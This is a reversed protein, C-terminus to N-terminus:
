QKNFKNILTQGNTSTVKILYAGKNLNSVDISSASNQKVLMRSGSLNFVEVTEIEVGAINLLNNAPNPYLRLSNSYDDFGVTTYSTTVPTTDVVNFQINSEPIWNGESDNFGWEWNNVGDDPVLQLTVSWINDGATEDGNTGDDYFATHEVGGDWDADYVGTAGKWSGKLMFGSYTKGASDDIIFTVDAKEEPMKPITYSTSVANEDAVTFEIDASPMWNGDLDEFGWKWTNSGGDSVLDITVSWIHDGATQDGNTGDDYFSSQVVGGDWESDYEGSASKWSGKLVFGSYTKDATDDVIFTVPTPNPGFNDFIVEVKGIYLIGGTVAGGGEIEQAAVQLVRAKGNTSTLEIKQEVFDASAAQAGSGLETWNPDSFKMFTNVADVAKGSTGEEYKVHAKFGTTGEPFTYEPVNMWSDWANLTVKFYKNGDISVIEWGSALDGEFTAPDVIVNPDVPIEIFAKVQGIWLTDGSVANWGQTEQGAVQMHTVTGAAKTPMKYMKFASSSGAAGVGLEAWGDSSNDVLKLFTNIQNVAFGSTGVAYKAEATFHTMESTLDFPVDLAFSSQWGALIVQLYKKGEIDVISMGEPLSDAVATEPDFIVMPDGLLFLDANESITNEDMVGSYINFENVTGLWTADNAYGGRALWAFDNSLASLSNNETLENTGKLEGDIYLSLTTGDITVVVHHKSGAETLPDATVASEVSWPETLNGCSIAARSAPGNWHNPAFFLGDGGLGNASGGLYIIMANQPTNDGVTIYTEFSASSYTNIAIDAAPLELYDGNTTTQLAGGSIAAGGILTGNAGGVVDAATGDEFTYSHKLVLEEEEAVTSIAKIYYINIGSSKSFLYISTAGGTYEYSAMSISEGLAPFIDITDGEATLIVLERDSSSSSSMAAVTITTNGPVDFGVVRAVPVGEEMSGSGGLKLRHTFDMGEVSKNNADVTVKKDANAYITLGEIVATETIDGLANFADTSINWEQETTQPIEHTEVKLYYINIGSSKSFLNISTAGGTYEYSQLSISEGLAPFIDITDGEASLIVLERDSSSSSSMAAITITANGSVEFGVVRAVPTSGDLSGSGGLKLRSTFDMGDISKNNADVTVSKDATAYITLGDITTTETIDGLANFADTSINWERVDAFMSMATILSLLLTFTLIRM